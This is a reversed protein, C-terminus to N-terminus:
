QADAKRPTEASASQHLPTVAVPPLLVDGTSKSVEVLRVSM